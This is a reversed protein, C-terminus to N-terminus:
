ANDDAVTVEVQQAQDLQRKLNNYALCQVALRMIMGLDPRSTPTAQRVFRKFNDGSHNNANADADAEMERLVEM